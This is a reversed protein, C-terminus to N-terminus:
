SSFTQVCLIEHSNIDAVCVQLEDASSSSQLSIHSCASALSDAAFPTDLRVASKAATDCEAGLLREPASGCSTDARVHEASCSPPPLFEGPRNSDHWNVAEDYFASKSSTAWRSSPRCSLM